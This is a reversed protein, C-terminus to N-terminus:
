INEFYQVHTSVTLLNKMSLIEHLYSNSKNLLPAVWLNSFGNTILIEM